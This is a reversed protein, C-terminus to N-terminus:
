LASIPHGNGMSKGITIIDPVVNQTEFGWFHSGTRGFGIQVEDAICLGSNKKILPM